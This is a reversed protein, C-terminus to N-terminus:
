ETRKWMPPKSKQASDKRLSWMQCSKEALESGFASISMETEMHLILRKATASIGNKPPPSWETETINIEQAEEFSSPYHKTQNSIRAQSLGHQHLGGQTM